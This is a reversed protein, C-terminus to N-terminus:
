SMTFLSPTLKWCAMSFTLIFKQYDKLYFKVWKETWLEFGWHCFLGLALAALNNTWRVPLALVLKGQIRNLSSHSKWIQNLWVVVDELQVIFKQWFFLGQLKRIDKSDMFKIGNLTWGFGLLVTLRKYAHDVSHDAVKLGLQLILLRWITYWSSCSGPWAVIRILASLVRLHHFVWIWHSPSRARM